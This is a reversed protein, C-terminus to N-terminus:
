ELIVYKRCKEVTVSGWFRVIGDILQDKSRPRRLFEQILTSTYNYMFQPMEVTYLIVLARPVYMIIYMIYASHAFYTYLHLPPHTSPSACAINRIEELPSQDCNVYM